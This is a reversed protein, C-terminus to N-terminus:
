ETKSLAIAFPAGIKHRLEILGLSELKRLLTTRRNHSIGIRAADYRTFYLERGNYRGGGLNALEWAIARLDRGDKGRVREIAEVWGTYIALFGPKLGRSTRAAIPRKRALKWKAREAALQEETLLLSSLDEGNM